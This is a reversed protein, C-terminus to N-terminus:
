LGFESLRIDVFRWDDFRLQESVDLIMEKISQTEINAAQLRQCILPVNEEPTLEQPRPEVIVRTSWPLTNNSFNTVFVERKANDIKEIYKKIVSWDAETNDIPKAAAYGAIAEDTTLASYLTTRPPYQVPITFNIDPDTLHKVVQWPSITIAMILGTAQFASFLLCLDSAIKFAGCYSFAFM